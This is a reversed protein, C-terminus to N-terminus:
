EGVVRLAPSDEPWVVASMSEALSAMRGAAVHQYRMAVDPSSHGLLEMLERVTARQQAFLTAGSHRLDHWHMDPHGLVVRARRFGSGGVVEGDRVRPEEGWVSERRLFGGRGGPFVLGDRGPQAHRELHRELIPVLGPVIPAERKKGSKTTSRIYVGDERDDEAISDDRIVGGRITITGKKLDIDRRTLAVAEGFRLCALACLYVLARREPYKDSMLDALQHVEEVSLTVPEHARQDERVKGAGDVQCPNVEVSAIRRDKVAAGMVTRLFSYTHARMTAASPLLEAYWDEVAEPTIHDIRRNGFVPAIHKDLMIRYGSATTPKMPKRGRKGEIRLRLWEDAYEKLTPVATSTAHNSRVKPPSWSDAEILRREADLWDNARKTANATRQRKNDADDLLPFTRPHYALDPGRYRARISGSALTTLNGFTSKRAM